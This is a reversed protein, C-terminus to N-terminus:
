RRIEPTSQFYSQGRCCDREASAQVALGVSTLPPWVQGALESNPSVSSASSTDIKNNEKSSGTGDKKMNKAGCNSRHSKISKPDRLQINCDECKWTCTELHKKLEDKNPQQVKCRICISQGITRPSKPPSSTNSLNSKAKDKQSKRSDKPKKQVYLISAVEKPVFDALKQHKLALHM